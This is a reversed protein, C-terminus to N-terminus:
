LTRGSTPAAQALWARVANTLEAADVGPPTIFYRAGNLVTIATGDATLNVSTIHARPISYARFFTRIVLLEDNLDIQRVEMRLTAALGIIFGIPLLTGLWSATFIKFALALATFGALLLAITVLDKASRQRGFTIRADRM